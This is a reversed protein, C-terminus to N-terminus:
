LRHAGNLRAKEVAAKVLARGLGMGRFKEDVVMKILEYVDDGLKRLAVTGAPQNDILGIFITGGGNLIAKEPDRLLFQDVPEPEMGFNKRFWNEFLREFFPQHEPLYDLIKIEGNMMIIHGFYSM